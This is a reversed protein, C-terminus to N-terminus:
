WLKTIIHTVGLSMGAATPHGVDMRDSHDNGAFILPEVKARSAYSSLIFQSLALLM